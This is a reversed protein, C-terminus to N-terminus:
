RSSAKAVAALLATAARRSGEDNLHGPDAAYGGYLAFYPQGRYRGSVRSGDPATSEVAAVDFLHDSAYEQRILENLRERVAAAAAGYSENGRLRQTVRSLTSPQTTLPVTAKVFTVDPFDNQLAKMTDRYASFVADVDTGPVVDIYCLKLVAVDIQRGLGGRIVADFDQIKKLPETNEGILSEVLFGATTDPAARGQEIPPPKVGHASFVVPVAGLINMGVSQHGFFVRTRAARELDASSVESVASGGTVRDVAVYGEETGDALMLWGSVGATGMVGVVVAAAIMRGVTRRRRPATARAGGWKEDTRFIGVRLRV